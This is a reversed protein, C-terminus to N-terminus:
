PAPPAKPKRELIKFQVRRNKQKGEATDNSDIPVDQGYGVATMRTAEVGRSVMAAQVSEARQQSLRKNNAANGTNDTHGQIEIKLIEPYDKLTQAVEDLLSDSVPKITARNVDFEVRQLIVIEKETVVVVSPCGNKEPNNSPVGKEQPCADVPDPIEDGDSDPCGNTKPDDRRPGPVSPCADEGDIIGDGDQDPPCGHKKPDDSAVGKVTMCADVPNEIGDGDDDGPPPCGHKEPDQHAIGPANPCADDEDLIGDQDSDPPPPCGHKQPDPSSIGPEDPCADVPDEIGDGDRDTAKEYGCCDDARPTYAVSLLVRAAPTGVGESLGPGGALGLELVEVARYRAGLMLEVNTNKAELDETSLAAWIEPGIQLNRAEDPVIAFGAALHAFRAQDSDAFRVADRIELGASAAWEIYDACGSVSLYPMARIEGDSMYEDEDGTPLWLRMGVGVQAPDHPDGALTLRAGLRLDGVSAGSPSIYFADTTIPDDGTQYLAFPWEVDLMLRSGLSFAAQLHLLLSHEVVVADSGDLQAGELSLPRLAYDGLLGAHPDLDGNASAGPVGFFRDGVPTPHFRSLGINDQASAIVPTAMLAAAMVLSFSPRM